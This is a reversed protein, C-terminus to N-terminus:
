KYRKVAGLRGPFVVIEVHPDVIDVIIQIKPMAFLRNWRPWGSPAHLAEVHATLVNDMDVIVHGDSGLFPTM